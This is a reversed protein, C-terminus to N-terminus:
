LEPRCGEVSLTKGSATTMRKASYSAKAVVFEKRRKLDDDCFLSYILPMKQFYAGHLCKEVLRMVNFPHKLLRSLLPLRRDYARKEENFQENGICLNNGTITFASLYQPIHACTYGRRILKIVFDLDSIGKLSEDFFIGDDVIKRRFFMTCTYVYLYSALVYHLRPKFAKRYAILSGDPNVLIMDGFLVDINPHDRFYDSVAKLTGPLYQEDCNLYALVNGKARTLGKNIAEYMGGDKESVSIIDSQGSLWVPTGDCSSGDIIIHEVDVGQDAISARCRKLYELMNYSPTIISIFPTQINM